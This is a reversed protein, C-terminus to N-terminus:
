VSKELKEIIALNKIGFSEIISKPRKDMFEILIKIKVNLANNRANIEDLVDNYEESLNIKIKELIEKKQM